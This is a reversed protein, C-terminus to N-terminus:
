EYIGNKLNEIHEKSVFNVSLWLTGFPDYKAQATQNYQESYFVRINTNESDDPSYLMKAQLSADFYQVFENPHAIPVLATVLQDELFLLTLNLESYTLQDYLGEGGLILDNEETYNSGLLSIVQNKSFGPSVEYLYFKGDQITFFQDIPPAQTYFQEFTSRQMPEDVFQLWQNWASSNGDLLYYITQVEPYSFALKNIGQLFESAGATAMSDNFANVFTHTFNILAVGNEDVRVSDFVQSVSYGSLYLQTLFAEIDNRLDFHEKGFQLVEFTKDDSSNDPSIPSQNSTSNTEDPSTQAQQVPKNYLAIIVIFVCITALSIIIPIWPQRKKIKITSAENIFNWTKSKASQDFIIEEKLEKFLEDMENHKNM